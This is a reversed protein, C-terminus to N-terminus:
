TYNCTPITMRREKVRVRCGEYMFDGLTAYGMRPVPKGYFVYFRCIHSVQYNEFDQKCLFRLDSIMKFGYKRIRRLAVGGKTSRQESGSMQSAASDDGKVSLCDTLLGIVRDRDKVVQNLMEKVEDDVEEEEEEEEDEPTEEKGKKTEMSKDMLTNVLSSTEYILGTFLVNSGEEIVKAMLELDAEEGGDEVAALRNSVVSSVNDQVEEWTVYDRPDIQTCLCRLRLLSIGLSFEENETEQVNGGRKRKAPSGGKKVDSAKSVKKCIEEMMKEIIVEVEHLKEDHSDLLCRLSKATSLLVSEKTSTCYIDKFIKIM